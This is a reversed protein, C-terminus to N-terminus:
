SYPVGGHGALSIFEVTTHLGPNCALVPSDAGVSVLDEKRSLEV